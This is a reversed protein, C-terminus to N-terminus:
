HMFVFEKANLLSWLIDELAAKTDESEEVHAALASVEDDTPYRAFAALYLDEIVADVPKEEAELRALLGNEATIAQEITAGNILHLTQALTPDEERDCTCASARDPRGFVDLFYNGTNGNATQVARAGLPLANFKVHTETVMSIADLLQEAPMRRITAYAFNREDRIGPTRPRTSQQYTNSNTIDRILARMDYRYDILREALADLLLPHSPPNSVRVDDVPDIIGRGLFHAWVRNALNRAFWPNEDSTLWEALVERRDRGGVEAPGEGLFAPQMVSNDRLNRVSGSGRNFIVQERPDSDGKRGVQAFFSSFSYYDDMTWREFPHDHCQACQLRIGFFVQAVNEGIQNPDTELVYFNSAPETFTGGSATLLDYVFQDAPVNEAVTERLWDNYRHMGKADLSNTTRVQLAEAWKMAWLDVFEPRELLTDILEARKGPNDDELFARTEEITPLVGLIDLYIRRVFVADDAKEAPPIRLNQLKAYVHEDIFNAPEADGPWEFSDADPVVMVQSVVAFAGFIAMIYAEGHDVPDALGEESITVTLDDSSSMIAMETVERQSGDSYDALVLFSQPDDGPSLVAHEPLFRIGELTAAEGSDDVAGEAIWRHLVEYAASDKELATGGEHPVAGLPKLLLLSEDPVAVNIRRAHQDRTLSIYDFAPDFGFLSIGFGNQGDASGHCGGSNCGARMLVPLVDNQFSAPAREAANTVTVPVRTEDGDLTFIATTEGDAIPVIAGGLWQAIGEPEFSVEANATADITIGDARTVMAIVRQTHTADSLNVAPPYVELAAAVPAALLLAALWVICPRAYQSPFKMPKTLEM